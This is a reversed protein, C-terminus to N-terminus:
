APSAGSFPSLDDPFEVKAYIESLPIALDLTPFQVRDELNAYETLLWQGSPQRLFHEVRPRTQSVVVYEQLSPVSRYHEFKGGRDWAETSESLVEVIVSPNVVIDRRDGEFQPKGCVVVVDPFAYLTSVTRIRLDAPIVGCPRDRLASRLEGALNGTILGHTYTAGAMASIFGAFYEHKTESARDLALYEDLTARKLAATMSTECNPGPKEAEM